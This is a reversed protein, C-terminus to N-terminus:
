RSRKNWLARRNNCRLASLTGQLLVAGSPSDARSGDAQTLRSRAPIPWILKKCTPQRHHVAPMEKSPSFRISASVSPAPPNGVFSIAWLTSSFGCRQSDCAAASTRRGVMPREKIATTLRKARRRGIVNEFTPLISWRAASGLRCVRTIVAGGMPSLSNSLAGTQNWLPRNARNVLVSGM